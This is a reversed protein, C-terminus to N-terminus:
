PQPHPTADPHAEPDAARVLVVSVNDRGGRDKAAQVLDDALVALPASAPWARAFREALDADGLMDTLGDSCLLFGDGPLVPHESLELQVEPGLGLARTILHRQPSRAAQEATILGADLQAQLPSHDRTLPELRGDRWRYGRSDGIHGLSLRAGQFWAVVLTTGMGLCEPQTTGADFVARNAQAVAQHLREAASAPDTSPGSAALAAHVVAVAMRSAVEGANYGGMGDALLALGLGTDAQVVDENNPRVCGPDSRCIFDYRM